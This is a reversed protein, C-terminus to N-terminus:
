DHRHRHGGARPDSIRRRGSLQCAAREHHGADTGVLGQGSQESAISPDSWHVHWSGETVGFRVTDGGGSAFGTTSGAIDVLGSASQVFFGQDWIYNWDVGLKRLKTRSVEMVKVHLLVTQVGRVTMNSIVKPYYDEAIAIVRSTLEPRPIEGEILVSSNLPRVRLTAEPFTAKLIMDLERADGVVVLDVTYINEHDDFLNVQTVGPSLASVQIQNAALPTLKVVDPNNVQARPVDVELTLIRSSNVVMELRQSSNRVQYHLSNEPANQGAVSCVGAFTCAFLSFLFRISPTSQSRLSM